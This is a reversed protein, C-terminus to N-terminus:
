SRTSTTMLSAAVIGTFYSVQPGVAVHAPDVGHIRAWLERGRAVTPDYGPATARGAAWDDLAASLASVATAPPLGISATNLYGRAGPFDSETAPLDM